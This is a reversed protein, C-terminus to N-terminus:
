KYIKGNCDWDFIMVTDKSHIQFLLEGQDKVVTDGPKIFKYYHCFWRNQEDYITDNGTRISKGIIEFDYASDSNPLEKVIIHCQDKRMIEALEKCDVECSTFVIYILFIQLLTNKM